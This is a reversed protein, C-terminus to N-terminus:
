IGSNDANIYTNGSVLCGLYTLHIHQFANGAMKINHFITKSKTECSAEILFGLEREEPSKSLLKVIGYASKISESSQNIHLVIESANLTDLSAKQVHNNLLKIVPIRIADLKKQLSALSLGDLESALDRLKISPKANMPQSLNMLVRLGSAQDQIVRHM